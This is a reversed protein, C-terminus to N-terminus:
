ASEQATESSGTPTVKRSRKQGRKAQGRKRPAGGMVQKKGRSSGGLGYTARQKGRAFRGAKLGASVAGHVEAPKLQLAAAIDKAPQPGNRSKLYAEIMTARSDGRNRGRRSGKKKRTRGPQRRTGGEETALQAEEAALKELKAIHRELLTLQKRREAIIDQLSM